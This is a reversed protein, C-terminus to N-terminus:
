RLARAYLSLLPLVVSDRKAWHPHPITLIKSSFTQYNYFIIDIDLTRPANKFPRTRRFRKELRALYQWLAHPQLQTRILIVANYFDPQTTFGFAPNRLIASSAILTTKPLQKLAHILHEFRRIVDGVNGGIGLIVVKGPTTHKLFRAPFMQRKIWQTLGM